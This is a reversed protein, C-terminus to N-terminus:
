QQPVCDTAQAQAEAMNGAVNALNKDVGPVLGSKLAAGAVSGFMKGFGGKKKETPACPPLAPASGAEANATLAAGVGQQLHAPVKDGLVGSKLAAGAAAGFMGGFMGKKPAEGEAAPTGGVAGLAGLGGMSDAPLALRAVDPPNGNISTLKFQSGFRLTGKGQGAVQARMKESGDPIKALSAMSEAVSYLARDLDVLRADRALVLEETRQAGSNDVYVLTHVTGTIGAHTEARGTDTLSIYQAISSSPTEPAKMGQGSTMQLLDIAMLKGAVNAVGYPKGGKLLFYGMPQGVVEVRLEGPGTWEVQSSVQQGEASTSSYVATGAAQAQVAMVSMALAMGWKSKIM